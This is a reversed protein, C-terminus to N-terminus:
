KEIVEIGIEVDGPVRIIRVGSDNFSTFFIKVVLDRYVTGSNGDADKSEYVQASGKGRKSAIFEELAM